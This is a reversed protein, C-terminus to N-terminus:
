FISDKLLLCTIGPPTLLTILGFLLFLLFQLVLFFMLFSFLFM